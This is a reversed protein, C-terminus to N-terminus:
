YKCMYDIRKKVTDNSLAILSLNKAVKENIMISVMMKEAPLILEEAIKGTKRGVSSSRKRTKLASEGKMTWHNLQTKTELIYYYIWTVDITVLRHWFESKNQKFQKLLVESINM